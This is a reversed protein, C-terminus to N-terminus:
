TMLRSCTRPPGPRPRGARPRRAVAPAIGRARRPFVQTFSARSRVRPRVPRRDSRLVLTQAACRVHGPRAAPCVAATTVPAPHLGTIQALGGLQTRATPRKSSLGAPSAGGGHGARSAVTAQAIGPAAALVALLGATVGLRLRGILHTRLCAM